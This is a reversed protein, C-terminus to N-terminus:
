CRVITVDNKDGSSVSVTVTQTQCGYSVPQAAQAASVPYIGAARASYVSPNVVV